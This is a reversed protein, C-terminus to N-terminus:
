LTKKVGTNLLLLKDLNFYVEPAGLECGLKFGGLFPCNQSAAVCEWQWSPLDFSIMQGSPCNIRRGGGGLLENCFFRFHNLDMM